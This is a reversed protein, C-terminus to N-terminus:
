VQSRHVLECGAELNRRNVHVKGVGFREAVLQAVETPTTGVQIGAAELADKKAQADIKEFALAVAARPDGATEEQAKWLARFIALGGDCHGVRKLRGGPM